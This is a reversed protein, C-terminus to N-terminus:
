GPVKIKMQYRKIRIQIKKSKVQYRESKIKTLKNKAVDVNWIYKQQLRDFTVSYFILLVSSISIKIANVFYLLLLCRSSPLGSSTNYISGQSPRWDLSAGTYILPLLLLLLHAKHFFIPRPRCCNFWNSVPLGSYPGAQLSLATTSCVWGLHPLLAALTLLLLQTSIATQGQRWEDRLFWLFISLLSHTICIKIFLHTREDM